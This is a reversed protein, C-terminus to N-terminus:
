MKVLHDLLNLASTQVVKLLLALQSNLPDIKQISPLFCRAIISLLANVPISIPGQSLDQLMRIICAFTYSCALGCYSIYKKDDSQQLEFIPIFDRTSLRLEDFDLSFLRNSHDVLLSCKGIGLGKFHDLLKNLSLILKSIHVFWSNKILSSSTPVYDDSKIFLNVVEVKYANIKLLPLVRRNSVSRRSSEIYSLFFNRMTEKAEGYVQPLDGELFLCVQQNSDLPAVNEPFNM